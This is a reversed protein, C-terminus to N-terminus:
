PQQDPHVPHEPLPVTQAKAMLGPERSKEGPNDCKQVSTDLHRNGVSYPFHSIFMSEREGEGEGRETERQKETERLRERKRFRDTETDREEAAM